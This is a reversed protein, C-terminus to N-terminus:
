TAIYSTGGSKSLIIYAYKEILSSPRAEGVKKDLNVGFIFQSIEIAEM